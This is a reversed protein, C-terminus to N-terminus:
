PPLSVLLGASFQLVLTADLPNTVGDDNIDGGDPCPLTTILGASVQLILAADLPNVTGDCNVDGVLSSFTPVTTPTNAPESTATSTPTATPPIVCNITLDSVKAAIAESTGLVFKTGSSGAFPDGLPLLRVLTSSPGSSCTFSLDVINGVYTSNPQAPPIGTLCGHSVTEDSLQSRTALFTECDPWAIEEVATKAAHYTLAMGFDIFSLAGVYGGAPGEIVEVSLTFAAGPSVACTDGACEAGSKVVLRMVPGGSLALAPQSDISWIGSVLLALVLIIGALLLRHGVNELSPLRM